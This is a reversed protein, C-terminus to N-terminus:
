SSPDPYKVVENKYNRLITQGDEKKVIYNPLIPIKGKGEPSDVIFHPIGLGSLRGRLNEMIEIGKDISTRFHEIGKVLDCIFMYYPRCRIKLLGKYLESLIKSDDNIGKLLVNQNNVPIGKNVLKLVAKKSEETIENPHNFHTNLWVPHYKSIMEVLEDTIRMPMTVPTRTGIRIIEISDVTRLKALINELKNTPMTLPDGGSVIIDKIEPHNKLYDIINDLEKETLHFDKSDTVRKRTCNHVASKEAVYSEDDEVSLDYFKDNENTIEKSISTIKNFIFKDTFFFESRSSEYNAEKKNNWNDFGEKSSVRIRYIPRFTAIGEQGAIETRSEVYKYKQACFGLHTLLMLIQNSLVESVTNFELSHTNKNENSPAKIWGDGDIMGKLMARKFMESSNYLLDESLRKGHCYQGCNDKVIKIFDKDFIM